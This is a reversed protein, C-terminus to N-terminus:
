IPSRRFALARFSACCLVAVVINFLFFVSFIHGDFRTYLSVLVMYLTTLISHCFVLCPASITNMIYIGNHIYWISISVFLIWIYFYERISMLCCCFTVCLCASVFVVVVCVCEFTSLTLSWTYVFIFCAFVCLNFCLINRATYDHSFIFFSVALFISNYIFSFLFFTLLTFLTFLYCFVCMWNVIYVNILLFLTLAVFVAFSLLCFIRMKIVLHVRYLYHVTVSWLCNNYYDVAFTTESENKIRGPHNIGRLVNSSSQWLQVPATHTLQTNHTRQRQAQGNNLLEWIPMLLKSNYCCLAIFWFFNCYLILHYFSSFFCKKSVIVFVREDDHHWDVHDNCSAFRSFFLIFCVLLNCTPM